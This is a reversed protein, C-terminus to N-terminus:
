ASLSARHQNRQSLNIEADVLLTIDSMVGEISQNANVYKLLGESDNTQELFSGRVREFFAISEREMRDLVQGRARVRDFAISVPLDMIFAVDPEIINLLKELEYLRWADYGKGACQYAYSSYNYRDCIVWDGRELAPEIIKEIHEKRAAMMMLLEAGLTLGESEPDLLLARLKMGIPTGGPERTVIYPIDNKKLHEAIHAVATSKGAGDCGDVVVFRGVDM